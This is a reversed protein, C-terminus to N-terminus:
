PFKVSQLLEFRMVIKFSDFCTPFDVLIKSYQSLFHINQSQNEKALLMRSAHQYFGPYNKIDPDSVKDFIAEAQQQLIQCIWM